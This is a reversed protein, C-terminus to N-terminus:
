RSRDWIPEGGSRYVVVNGDNQVQLYANANNATGTAWRGVGQADYVVFNGDGQMVANGASSGGTNSAWLPLQDVDDYLVLNGDSQYVLRYRGNGSILAQGPLLRAGSQLRDRPVVQLTVTASARGGRRDDVMVTATVSGPQTPATWVTTAANSNTFTGQSATWQFTVSDSDPDTANASLTATLGTQVTCPNCSATVSPARNNPPPAASGYIARAGTTDDTQLNDINSVRSNMIAAVSQGHEDPHGLGLVHGFEHLAVRRLDYLTGGGSASRLNGRYSNWSLGRDFVVDTETLINDSVRYLWKTIAVADGFSEGYVDDGWIVNNLGNRLAIGATSNRVVRFSVGNLIPSWTALAGESVTNWDASGDILTGGSSGMQLQMVISSGSAWRQGFAWFAGGPHTFWMVLCAAGLAAMRAKM